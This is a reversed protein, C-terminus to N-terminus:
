DVDRVIEMVVGSFTPLFEKGNFVRLSAFVRTRSSPSTTLM